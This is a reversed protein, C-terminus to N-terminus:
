LMHFLKVKNWVLSSLSKLLELSFGQDVPQFNWVSKCSSHYTLPYSLPAMYMSKEWFINFNQSNVRLAFYKFKVDWVYIILIFNPNMKQFISLLSVVPHSQYCEEVWHEKEKADNCDNAISDDENDNDTLPFKPSNNTVEENERQWNCVKTNAQKDHYRSPELAPYSYFIVRQM